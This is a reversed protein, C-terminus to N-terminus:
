NAEKVEPECYAAGSWLAIERETAQHMIEEASQNLPLKIWFQMGNEMGIFFQTHPLRVWTRVQGRMPIAGVNTIELRGNKGSTRAKWGSSCPYTWGAYRRSAKFKPYGGLGKFFRVFAFDVRKLTAQLAHSGLQKYETWVEKFAPLCNQQEFYDVSHEFKQYQTKRNYVAANYLACHM